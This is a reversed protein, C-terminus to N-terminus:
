TDCHYQQCRRPSGGDNLWYLRTDIGHGPVADSELNKQHISAVHLITNGVTSNKRDKFYSLQHFKWQLTITFDKIM